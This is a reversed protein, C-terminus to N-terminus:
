AHMRVVTDSCWTHSRMLVKPQSFMRLVTLHQVVAATRGLLGASSDSLHTM